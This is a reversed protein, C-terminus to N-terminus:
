KSIDKWVVNSQKSEKSQKSQKTQKTQLSQKSQKASKNSGILRKIFRNNWNFFEKALCFENISKFFCEKSERIIPVNSLQHNSKGCDCTIFNIKEYNEEKSLDLSDLLLKKCSETNHCFKICIECIYAISNGQCQCTYINQNTKLKKHKHLTLFLCDIKNNFYDEFSKIGKSISNLKHIENKRADM